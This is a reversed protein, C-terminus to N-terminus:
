APDAALLPLRITVTTGRGVRSSVEMTGGHAEILQRALPLGFGRAGDAEPTPPQGINSRDLREFARKIQEESMGRGNDSLAIEGESGESRVRALVRGGAPTYAVANRLLHDLAQALRRRDGHVIGAAPPLDAALTLGAAWAPERARDLAARVADILPIDEMEMPLGGVESQTLDLLDGMLSSLRGVASLIADVYDRATDSMAGAYGGALMEAFGTISTLPVRLEYNMSAVFSNKLRNAEELAENRDRLAQENQRAATVDQLTFLANGDPLPVAGFEFHRGDAMALRGARHQRERTAVRVTDRITAAHRPDDLSPAMAQSLTDIRPHRSLQEARFSWLDAFRQNWLQLRGDAAFVGIAESLNDFTATRVRLLTDRASALRLHETRDEFILLLGRDPLPQAVVRLHTGGPLLWSEEVPDTSAFWARREARWGPFDRSEPVRQVERMRDLVMDFSPHDRLWEPTMAFLAAFHTNWFSLGHDGAFQAVGASLQDLMDRQAQVFQGLEARAEEVEQVDIAYGAVGSSGVPVDVVRMLRREGAIIAPATRSVTANGDRAQAASARAGSGSSDEILETGRAVVDAASAAELAEVYAGNVLALSLDSTRHWMPFPAAEILASLGDIARGLRTAQERLRELEQQTITVDTFWLLVAHLAGGAAAYPGGRCLLARDTGVIPLRLTFPKAARRAGGIAADLLGRDKDTLADSARVQELRDLPEPLGLWQGVRPDADIADNDYLLVPVAPSGKLLDAVASAEAMARRGDAACRIGYIVACLAIGLWAAAIIAALAGHLLAGTM